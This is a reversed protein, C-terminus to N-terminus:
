TEAQPRERNLRRHKLSLLLVNFLIVTWAIGLGIRRLRRSELRESVGELAKQATNISRQAATEIEDQQLSHWVLRARAFESRAEQLTEQPRRVHIGLRDARAIASEVLSLTDRVHSFRTKVAQGMQFPPSDQPHCEACAPEVRAITPHQVNHNSHCSACALAGTKEMGASHPSRDFNEGPGIHCTACVLSRYARSDPRKVFTIGHIGHCDICVTNAKGQGWHVSKSYDGFPVPHCDGCLRPIDSRPIRDPQGAEHCGECGLYEHVGGTFAAQAEPPLPELARAEPCLALSAASLLLSALIPLTRTM